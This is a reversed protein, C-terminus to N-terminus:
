VSEPQQAVATALEQEFSGIDTCTYAVDVLHKLQATDSIQELSVELRQLMSADVNLRRNLTELTMDRLTEQREQTRLRRIMPTNLQWGLKEMVHEAMHLLEENESLVILESLLNQQREVDPVAQIQEMVQPFLAEADRIDTLGILPLLGPLGLKLLVEAPLRWLHVVGYSWSLNPKGSFTVTEYQGTDNKGAGHGIYFVVSTFFQLDLFHHRVLETQYVLQRLWMPEHTTPGQFELHFLGRLGNALTVIFLLDLWRKHRRPQPLLETPCPEVKEIDADILWAAFDDCNDIVLRKLAEDTEPM